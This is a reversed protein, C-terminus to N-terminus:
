SPIQIDLFWLLRRQRRHGLLGERQCQCRKGIEKVKIREGFYPKITPKQKGSNNKNNQWSTVTSEQAKPSCVCVDKEREPAENQTFSRELFPGDPHGNPCALIRSGSTRSPPPRPQPLRERMSTEQAIERESCKAGVMSKALWLWLHALLRESKPPSQAWKHPAAHHSEGM